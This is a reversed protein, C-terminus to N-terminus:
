ALNYSCGSFRRDPDNVGDHNCAYGDDLVSARPSADTRKGGSKSVLVCVWGNGNLDKSALSSKGDTRKGAYDTACGQFENAALHHASAPTALAVAAATAAVATVAVRITRYLPM